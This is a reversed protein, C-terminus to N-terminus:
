KLDVGKLEEQWASEERELDFLYAFDDRGLSKSFGEEGLINASMMQKKQQLTLIKEEITGKTIMRYAMVPQTQGIRHARDFVLVGDLMGEFMTRLTSRSGRFAVDIRLMASAVVVASMGIANRLVARLPAFSGAMPKRIEPVGRIDGVRWDTRPSGAYSDHCAV